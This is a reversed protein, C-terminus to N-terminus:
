EDRVEEVQLGLSSHLLLAVFQLGEADLEVCLHELTGEFYELVRAPCLLQIGYEHLLCLDYIHLNLWVNIEGHRDPKIM